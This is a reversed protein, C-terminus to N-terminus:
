RKEVPTDNDLDMDSEEKADSEMYDLAIKKLAEDRFQPFLSFALHVLLYSDNFYDLILTDHDIDLLSIHRFIASPPSVTIFNLVQEKLLSPIVPIVLDEPVVPGFVVYKLKKTPFLVRRPEISFSGLLPMEGSPVVPSKQVLQSDVAPEEM